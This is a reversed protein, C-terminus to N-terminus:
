SCIYQNKSIRYCVNDKKIEKNYIEDFSPYNCITKDEYNAYVCMVGIYLFITLM